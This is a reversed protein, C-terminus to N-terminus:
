SFYENEGYRHLATQLKITKECALQQSSRNMVIFYIISLYIEGLRMYKLYKKKTVNLKQKKLWLLPQDISTEYGLSSCKLHMISHCFLRYSESSYM